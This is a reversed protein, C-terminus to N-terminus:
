RKRWDLLIWRGWFHRQGRIDWKLQQTTLYLLDTFTARSARCLMQMLRTERTSTNCYFASIVSLAWIKQFFFQCFSWHTTDSPHLKLWELSMTLGAYTGQLQGSLHEQFKTTEPIKTICVTSAGKCLQPFYTYPIATTLCVCHVKEVKVSPYPLRQKQPLVHKTVVLYCFKRSTM